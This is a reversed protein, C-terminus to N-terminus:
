EQRNPEHKAENRSGDVAPWALRNCALQQMPKSTETTRPEQTDKTCKGCPCEPGCPAPQARVTRGLRRRKAARSLELTIRATTACPPPTTARGCRCDNEGTALVARKPRLAAAGGAKPCPQHELAERVGAPVRAWGCGAGSPNESRVCPAGPKPAPAEAASAAQRSGPECGAGPECRFLAWNCAGNRRALTTQMVMRELRRQEAVRSLELTLGRLIREHSRSSSAALM